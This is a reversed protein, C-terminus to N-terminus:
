AQAEKEDKIAQLVKVFRRPVDSLATVLSTPVANMASLVQALLVERSPLASLAVIGDNDIVSGNLVGAKIELKKNEKAFDVLVKAPAVPDDSSLAVASPGKFLDKIQGVDNGESARTLLSNKVVQYETNAERLKRRLSNMAEVDLGKYDTLVVITSKELRGQLDEAIRKKENIDM